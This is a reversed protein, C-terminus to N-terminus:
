LTGICLAYRYIRYVIHNIHKSATHVQLYMYIYIYPELTTEPTRLVTNELCQRRSMTDQAIVLPFRCAVYKFSNRTSTRTSSSTPNRPRGEGPLGIVLVNGRGGKNVKAPSTASSGFNTAARFTMKESCKSEFPSHLHFTKRGRRAHPNRPELGISFETGSVCRANCLFHCSLAILFVHLFTRLFARGFPVKLWIYM